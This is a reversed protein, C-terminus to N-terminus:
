SIIEAPDSAFCLNDWCFFRFTGAVSSMITIWAHTDSIIAIKKKNYKFLNGACFKANKNSAYVEVFYRHLGACM